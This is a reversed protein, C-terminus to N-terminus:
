WVCLTAYTENKRKPFGMKILQTDIKNSTPPPPSHAFLLEKFHEEHLAVGYTGGTSESIAKCVHVEATLGIISCKINDKKLAEITDFIDGPDCTTLSGFIILM